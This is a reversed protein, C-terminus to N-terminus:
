SLLKDCTAKLHAYSQELAQPIVRVDAIASMFNTDGSWRPLIHVHLHGPLGAGACRGLNIGINIGQPNVAARLVREGFATLEMLGARQEVSLDGLEGIHDDVAALLHGNTYPYRNLMLLGRADHHLVFREAAADPDSARAVADCLFCGSPSQSSAAAAPLDSPDLQRIYDMRWPAWINEVAM